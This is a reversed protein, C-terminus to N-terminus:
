SNGSVAGGGRRRGRITLGRSGPSSTGDVREQKTQKVTSEACKTREPRYACDGHRIWLQMALVEGAPSEAAFALVQNEPLRALADFSAASFVQLGTIGRHAILGAYLCGWHGRWVPDRLSVLRATARREGRRIKDRHHKSPTPLGARRDIVYHTKFPRCVPFHRELTEVAPGRLPDSVLVVSVAGVAQM